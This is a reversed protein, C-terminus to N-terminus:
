ATMAVESNAEPTIMESVYRTDSVKVENFGYGRAKAYLRDSEIEYFMRLLDMQGGAKSSFVPDLGGTYFDDFALEYIEPNAKSRRVGIQFKANPHSIVHDCKITRNGYTAAQTVDRILQGGCRVAATELADLNKIETEACVTTHSM